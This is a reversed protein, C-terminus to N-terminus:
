AAVAYQLPLAGSLLRPRVAARWTRWVGCRQWLRCRSPRRGRQGFCRRWQCCCGGQRRWVRCGAACLAVAAAAVLRRSRVCCLAHCHTWCYCCAAAMGDIRAAVLLEWRYTCCFRLWAGCIVACGVLHPWVSAVRRSLCRSTLLPPQGGCRAACLLAALWLLLRAAALPRLWCCLMACRGCRRVTM